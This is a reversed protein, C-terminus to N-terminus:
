MLACHINRCFWTFASREANRYWFRSCIQLIKYGITQRFDEVFFLNVKGLRVFPLKLKIFKRNQM